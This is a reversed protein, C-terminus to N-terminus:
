APDNQDPGSIRRGALLREVRRVLNADLKPATGARPPQTAIGAMADSYSLWTFVRDVCEIMLAKMEEDSIRSVETWPTEGDPTLLSDIQIDRNRPFVM